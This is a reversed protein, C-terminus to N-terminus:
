IIMCDNCWYGIFNVSSDQNILVGFGHRSIRNSTNNFKTEGRYICGNIYHITNEDYSKNEEFMITELEIDRTISNAPSKDKSLIVEGSLEQKYETDDISKIKDGITVVIRSKTNLVGHRWERYIKLNQVNYTEVSRGHKVNNKYMGYFEYDTSKITILGDPIITSNNLREGYPGYYEKKELTKSPPFTPIPLVFKAVKPAEKILAGGASYVPYRPAAAASAIIRNPTQIIKSEMVEPNRLLSETQVPSNDIWQCKIVRGNRQIKTGFGNRMNNLWYGEYKDGYKTSTMTGYGSRVGLKWQGNYESKDEHIEKGEGHRRDNEWAGIYVNGSNMVMKGNGHRQGNKIDGTYTGDKCIKIGRGNPIDNVWEGEYNYGSLYIAKGYGHAKGNRYNGIYKSGNLYVMQGLGHPKGNAYLGTHKNGDPYITSGSGHAKSNLYPGAYKGEM